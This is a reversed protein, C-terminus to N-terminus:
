KDYATGTLLYYYLESPACPVCLGEKKCFAFIDQVSLLGNEELIRTKRAYIKTDLLIKKQKETKEAIMDPNKDLMLLIEWYRERVAETTVPETGYFVLGYIEYFLYFIRYDTFIGKGGTVSGAFFACELWDDLYEFELTDGVSIPVESLLSVITMKLVAALDLRKMLALRKEGKEHICAEVAELVRQTDYYFSTTTLHEAALHKAFFSEQGRYADKREDVLNLFDSIRIASGFDLNRVAVIQGSDGSVAYLNEPKIDLNLYGEAHYVCLDCLLRYAFYFVEAVRKEAPANKLEHLRSHLTFGGAYRCRFCRGLSSELLEPIIFMNANQEQYKAGVALVTEESSEFDRRRKELMNKERESLTALPLLKGNAGRRKMVPREGEFLPCFEKVIDGNETRYVLCTNGEGIYTLPEAKGKKSFTIEAAPVRTNM